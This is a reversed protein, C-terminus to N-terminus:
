SPSSSTLAALRRNADEGTARLTIRRTSEDLAAFEVRFARDGFLPEALEGWEILAVGGDDLMEELALEVVEHVSGLRWCDVHAVPPVTDYTHVLTFTPSTVIEDSGLADVVGRVFTTKGAGLEGILLVVDGPRLVSAVRAGLARTEDASHTTFCREVLDGTM